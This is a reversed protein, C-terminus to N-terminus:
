FCKIMKFGENDHKSDRQYVKITGDKMGVIFTEGDWTVGLRRAKTSDAPDNIRFL